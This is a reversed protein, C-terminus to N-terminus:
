RSGVGLVLDSSFAAYILGVGFAMWGLGVVVSMIAQGIPKDESTILRRIPSASFFNGWAERNRKMVYNAMRKPRFVMLSGLSLVIVGLMFCIVRAAILQM